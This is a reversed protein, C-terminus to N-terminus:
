WMSQLLIQLKELTTLRIRRQLVDFNSRELKGLLRRYIEILAWLSRRSRKHVLGILPRGLFESKGAFEVGKFRAELRWLGSPWKRLKAFIAGIATALTHDSM